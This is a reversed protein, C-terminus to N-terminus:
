FIPPQIKISSFYSMKQTPIVINHPLDDLIVQAIGINKKINCAVSRIDIYKM